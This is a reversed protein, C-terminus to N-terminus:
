CNNELMNKCVEPFQQPTQLQAVFWILSFWIQPLLSKFVFVSQEQSWCLLKRQWGVSSSDLFFFTVSSCVLRGVYLWCMFVLTWLPPQVFQYVVDGQGAVWSCRAM